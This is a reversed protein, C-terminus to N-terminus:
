RKDPWGSEFKQITSRNYDLMSLYFEDFDPFTEILQGAYWVVVGPRPSGPLGLLFTDLQGASAAVPLVESIDLGTDEAFLDPEVEDLYSRAAEAVVGRVLGSTGLIDVHQYFSRWGNAHQLFRRYEPDLSYGLGREAGSIEDESAAVEPLPYEWMGKVDLERLRQHVLVGKVIESPWDIL